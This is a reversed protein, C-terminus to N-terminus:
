SAIPPPPWISTSGKSASGRRSLHFGREVPRGHFDLAHCRAPRRRHHDVTRLPPALRRQGRAKRLRQEEREFVADRGADLNIRHLAGVTKLAHQARETFDVLVARIFILREHEIRSMSSACTTSNTQALNLQFFISCGDKPLPQTEHSSSHRRKMRAM